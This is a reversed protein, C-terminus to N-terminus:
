RMVSVDLLLNDLQRPTLKQGYKEEILGCARLCKEYFKRYENDTETDAYTGRAIGSSIGQLAVVARTDYIFFLHPFHFHFYKSALSRKELGSIEEFLNTLKFHASLITGLNQENPERIGKLGLFWKDIQSKRMRPAVNDTYFKDGEFVEGSNRRRREIAAAYARGILWVKALIAQDDAHGPHKRCLEYLTENGLDWIRGETAGKIMRPTLKKMLAM